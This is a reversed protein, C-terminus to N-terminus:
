PSVDVLARAPEIGRGGRYRKTVDEMRVPLPVASGDM